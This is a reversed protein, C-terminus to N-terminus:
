KKWLIDFMNNFKILDETSLRNLKDNIDKSVTERSVSNISNALKVVTETLLAMKDNQEKQVKVLNKEVGDMLEYILDSLNKEINSSVIEEKTEPPHMEVVEPASSTASIIEEVKDVEEVSDVPEIVEEERVWNEPLKRKLRESLLQHQQSSLGKIRWKGQTGTGVLKEIIGMANLKAFVLSGYSESVDAYNVIMKITTVSHVKANIKHFYMLLYIFKDRADLKEIDKKIPAVFLRLFDERIAATSDGRTEYWPCGATKYSNIVKDRLSHSIQSTCILAGHVIPVTKNQESDPRHIAQFGYGNVFRTFQNDATHMGAVLMTNSMEM